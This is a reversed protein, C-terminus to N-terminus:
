FRWECTPEEATRGDNGSSDRLTIDDGTCDKDGDDDIDILRDDTVEGLIKESIIVIGTGDEDTIATIEVEGVLQREM